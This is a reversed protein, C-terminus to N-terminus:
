FLLDWSLTGFDRDGSKLRIGNEVPEISVKGAGAGAGQLAPKAPLDITQKGNAEVNVIVTPADDGLLKIPMAIPFPQNNTVEVKQQAPCVSVAAVLTLVAIVLAPIRNPM